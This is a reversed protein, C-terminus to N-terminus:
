RDGVELRVGRDDLRGRGLDREDSTREDRDDITTPVPNGAHHLARPGPTPDGPPRTHNGSAPDPPDTDAWPDFQAAPTNETTTPAPHHAHNRAASDSAGRDR